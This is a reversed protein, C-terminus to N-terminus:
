PNLFWELSMLLLGGCLGLSICATLIAAHAFRSFACLYHGDILDSVSNIYPIGPILFLVSTGLAVEPTTGLGFVHGGSGVVSAFFAAAVTTLRADVKEALMMQKLGFGALTALFVLAMSPADGGFLRCFSANAAAVLPLMARAPTAQGDGMAQMRTGAEAPTMGGAAVQWSLRSLQTNLQFSAHAGAVRVTRTYTHRGATDGVTLSVAAPLLSLEATVDWAAAMRGVNKEVRICTAGCALLRAAYTALLTCTEKLREHTTDSNTTM